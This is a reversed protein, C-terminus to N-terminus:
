KLLLTAEDKIAAVAYMSVVPYVKGQSGVNNSKHKEVHLKFPVNTVTGNKAMVLDFQSVISPITTNVGKTHFRFLGLSNSGVIFFKMELIENWHAKYREDSYKEAYTSRFAEDISELKKAEMIAELSKKKSEPLTNLDICIKGKDTWIEYYNEVGNGVLNGAKDRLERHHSMHSDDLFIIDLEKPKDGYISLLNDRIHGAKTNLTFYDNSAPYEKGSQSIKKEGIKVTGIVALNQMSINKVLRM